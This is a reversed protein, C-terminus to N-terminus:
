LTEVIKKFRTLDVESDIGPPLPEEVVSAHIKEGNWLFRLQELREVTELPSETWKSYQKLANVRYAYLGIHRFHVGKLEFVSRDWPIPARSFYLAFGEKDLVVKVIDSDFVEEPDVIPTCLTSVAASPNDIVASVAQQVAKPSILPEDGQINVVIAEDELGITQVAEALRQTGSSHKPSTMCVTAGFSEAAEKIRLDDTAITISEAKCLLAREYVYQILPKGSVEILLKGPLRQSDFRAPILIHFSM